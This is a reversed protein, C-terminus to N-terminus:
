HYGNNGRYTEPNKQYLDYEGLFKDRPLTEDGKGCALLLTTLLILAPTKKIM